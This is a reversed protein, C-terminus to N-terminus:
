EAGYCDRGTVIEDEHGFRFFTSWFMGSANRDWYQVKMWTGEVFGTAYAPEATPDAVLADRSLGGITLIQTSGTNCVNADPDTLPEWDQAALAYYEARDPIGERVCSSTDLVLEAVGTVADVEAEDECPPEPMLDELM